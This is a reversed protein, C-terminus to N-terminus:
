FFLLIFISGCWYYEMAQLVKDRQVSWCSSQQFKGFYSLWFANGPRKVPVLQLPTSKWCLNLTWGIGSNGALYNMWHWVDGESRVLLTLGSALTECEVSERKGATWIGSGRLQIHDLDRNQTKYIKVLATALQPSKSGSNQHTGVGQVASFKQSHQM